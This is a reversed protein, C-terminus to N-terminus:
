EGLAKGFGAIGGSYINGALAEADAVPVGDAQFTGTWNLASGDGEATVVMTASYDKFPLPSETISYTLTRSDEDLVDLSEVVEGGGMPIRRVAGVGEGEVPYADMGDMFKHLGGFDRVMTWLEDPSAAFTGSRTVESQQGDSM